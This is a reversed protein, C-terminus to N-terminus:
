GFGPSSVSMFELAPAFGANAINACICCTSRASLFELQEPTIPADNNVDSLPLKSPEVPPPAALVFTTSGETAEDTSGETAGAAAEN